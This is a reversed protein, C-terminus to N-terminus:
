EKEGKMKKILADLYEADGKGSALIELEEVVERRSIYEKSIAQALAPSDQIDYDGSGEQGNNRYDEIIQELRKTM